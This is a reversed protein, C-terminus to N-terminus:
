DEGPLMITICPEGNDGGSIVAKLGVERHTDPFDPSLKENDQWEANPPFEVIVRYAIVEQGGNIRAEIHLMWLLDWLRAAEDQLGKLSEPVEVYRDWVTRTMAVPWKFLRGSEPNDSVDVLIGDNIADTRSYTYIPEGFLRTMESETSIGTGSKEIGNM